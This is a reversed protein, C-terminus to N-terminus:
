VLEFESGPVSPFGTVDDLYVLIFKSRTFTQEEGATLREDKDGFIM